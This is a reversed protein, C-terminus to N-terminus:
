RSHLLSKGEVLVPFQEPGQYEEVAVFDGFQEYAVNWVDCVLMCHLSILFLVGIIEFLLLFL